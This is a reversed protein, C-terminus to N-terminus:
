YVMRTQVFIDQIERVYSPSLITDEHVDRYYDEVIEKLEEIYENLNEVFMDLKNLNVNIQKININSISYQKYLIEIFYDSLTIKREWRVKEKEDDFYYLDFNSITTRLFRLKKLAWKFYLIKQFGTVVQTNRCCPCTMKGTAFWSNICRRHFHHCINADGRQVMDYCIACTVRNRFARQIISASHNWKIVRKRLRDIIKNNNNDQSILM